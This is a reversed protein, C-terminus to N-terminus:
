TQGRMKGLADLTKELAKLNVVVDASHSDGDEGAPRVKMYRYDLDLARALSFYCNNERDGEFRLEVVKTEPAMFLMNTLGAGHLGMLVEAQSLLRVQAKFDLDELHVIEFEHSHLVPLLESENAIRRKPAKSRSVWIRRTSEATSGFAERYRSRLKKMWEPRYNGTPALAGICLIEDMQVGQKRDSWVVDKISFAELSPLVYPFRAMEPLVLPLSKLLDPQSAELAELKPLVDGLWHFYGNSFEDTIWLGKVISNWTEPRQLLNKILGKPQRWRSGPAAWSIDMPWSILNGTLSGGPWVRIKKEQHLFTPPIEKEAEHRFLSIDEPAELAPMARIVSEANLVTKSKLCNRRFCFSPKM